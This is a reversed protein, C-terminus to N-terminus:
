KPIYYRAVSGLLGGITCLVVGSIIAGTIGIVDTYREPLGDFILQAFLITLVGASMGVIASNFVGSPHTRFATLFGAVLFPFIYIASVLLGSLNGNSILFSTPNMLFNITAFMIWYLLCYAVVGIALSKSDLQFLRYM